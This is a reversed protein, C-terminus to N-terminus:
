LIIEEPSCNLLLAVKERAKEVAEKALWGAEHNSSPNGFVEYLYPQVADAVRRDIPTTANYGMYIM